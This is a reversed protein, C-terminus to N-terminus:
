GEGGATGPGLARAVAEPDALRYHTASRGKFTIRLVGQRVLRNLLAPDGRVEYGEWGLPHEPHAQEWALARALVEATDPDELAQRLPDGRRGPRGPLAVRLAQQVTSVPLLDMGDPPPADQRAPVLARRFGLRGAEQLRRALHRVPRVEGSLGVEGVAVLDDPLPTQYLSSALALAVALDVAPEAIRLGGAVNALVDHGGLPLRARQALVATLMTLRVPDLGSATRRPTPLGSPVALAQVEVLLPRSGEVVVAVASGLSGPRRGGVLVRSPDEVEALGDGRMELLAVEHAPGFRNKVARLLRLGSLPDGELMLVGDVMHELVRPGAVEGEKTMHGTMVLPTRHAKAWLLLRRASERVQVVSGPASPLDECALTQVSDVLVAFPRMWDLAYLVAGVATENLLFIGRGSVGLREARMRVQEGSEEGAVYLIPGHQALAGAWQLLLTSKGIGPDGALLLVGGPVLGGGLVRMTEPFPLPIRSVGEGSLRALEVPERDGPLVWAGQPAHTQPAEREMTGFAGCEPCRGYHLPSRYGCEQCAYGERVKGM